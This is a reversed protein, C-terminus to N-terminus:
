STLVVCDPFRPGQLVSGLERVHGVLKTLGFNHFGGTASAVGDEDGGLTLRVCAAGVVDPLARLALRVVDPGKGLDAAGNRLLVDDLSRGADVEAQEQGGRALDIGKPRGLIPLEAMSPRALTDSRALDDVLLLPVRDPDLAVQPIALHHLDSASLGM